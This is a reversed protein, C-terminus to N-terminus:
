DGRELSKRPNDRLIPEPEAEPEPHKRKFIRAGSDRSRHVEAIGDLEGQKYTFWEPIVAYDVGLKDFLFRYDDKTTDWFVWHYNVSSGTLRALRVAEFAPATVVLPRGLRESDALLFDVLEIRYIAPNMSQDGERIAEGMRFMGGVSSVALILTVAAFSVRERRRLIWVIALFFLLGAILAQRRGFNWPSGFVKHITHLSFFGGLALLVVFCIAMTRPELLANRWRTWSGPKTQAVLWVLTAPLAVLVSWEAGNFVPFYSFEKNWNFAYFFGPARDVIYGWLGETPQLVPIASLFDTPRNQDFRVVSAISADPIFTQIYLYEPLMVLAATAIAILAMTFCAMRRAGVVICLGLAGLAAISVLLMQGRALILFGLWLGLEIGSKIGPKEFLREARLMLLLLLSFAVGETYPLSTYHFFAFNFGMVLVWIHGAHIGNLKPTFLDEPWTRRAWRYGVLLTFFYLLSNIAIAAPILPFLLGLGGLLLPWLPAVSSQHPFSAYGKHYLSINTAIGHGDRIHGAVNLYYGGDSRQVASLNEVGHLVKYALLTLLLLALFATATKM